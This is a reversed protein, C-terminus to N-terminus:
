TAQRVVGEKSQLGEGDPQGKEIQIDNSPGENDAANEQKAEEKVAEPKKAEVDKKQSAQLAKNKWLTEKRYLDKFKIASNYLMYSVVIILLITSITSPLVTNLMVGISTGVMVLPMFIVTIDYNQM